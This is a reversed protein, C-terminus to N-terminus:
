EGRKRINPAGNNYILSLFLPLPENKIYIKKAHNIFKKQLVTKNM